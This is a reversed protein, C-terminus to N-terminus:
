PTLVMDELLIRRHAPYSYWIGKLPSCWGEVTAFSEGHHSSCENSEYLDAADSTLRERAFRCQGALTPSVQEKVMCDVPAKMATELYELAM